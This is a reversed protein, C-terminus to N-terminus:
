LIKSVDLVRLTRETPRVFFIFQLECTLQERLNGTNLQLESANCAWTESKNKFIIREHISRMRAWKNDSTWVWAEREHESVLESIDCKHEDFTVYSNYMLERRDDSTVVEIVNVNLSM